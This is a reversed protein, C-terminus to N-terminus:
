FCHTATDSLPIDPPQFPSAAASLTSAASMEGAAAAGAPSPSSLPHDKNTSNQQNWHRRRRQRAEYALKAAEPTLDENVYVQQAIIPDDSKRLHQAATLLEATASESRLHVLLRRPKDPLQKGLRVCKLILPKCCLHEECIKEFLKADEEASSASGAQPEPLGSVVM